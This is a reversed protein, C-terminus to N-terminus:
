KLDALLSPHRFGGPLGRAIDTYARLLSFFDVVDPIFSAAEEPYFYRYAERLQGGIALHQRASLEQVKRLLVATNPLNFASSFGAGLFYTTREREPVPPM